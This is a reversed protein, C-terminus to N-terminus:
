PSTAMDIQTADGAPSRRPLPRLPVKGILRDERAKTMQTKLPVADTQGSAKNRRTKGSTKQQNARM